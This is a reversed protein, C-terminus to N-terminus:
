RKIENILRENYYTKVNHFRDTKEKLLKQM